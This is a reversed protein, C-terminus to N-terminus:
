TWMCHGYTFQQAETMEPANGWQKTTTPDLPIGHLAQVLAAGM